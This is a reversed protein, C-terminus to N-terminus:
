HRVELYEINQKISTRKKQVGTEKANIDVSKCWISPTKGSIGEFGNEQYQKGRWIKDVLSELSQIATSNFDLLWQTGVIGAGM